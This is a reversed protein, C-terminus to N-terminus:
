AAIVATQMGLKTFMLFFISMIFAILIYNAYPYAMAPFITKHGEAIKQKRFKMHTVTIMLWTILLFAVVISMAFQFAEHWLPFKFSLPVVLLTLFATFLVAKIPVGRSNVSKFLKPASGQMALGYLMRSTSYVCSNYVSLAATLVIFNLVGAFYKFGINKFIFVFPSTTSDLYSWHNLSLLVLFAGIYFILIRYLVQNTAKPIVVKPNDAEAATLGILEVGGFSFMIIPLAMIFGALGMPFFGAYASDGAHAGVTPASWLNSVAAGEINNTFFLLYSGFVIMLIIATVKIIAFWFEIEGFAKVTLMNILNLAIFFALAWVITPVADGFWYHMYGAAAILEAIGVFVYLIWYNWGSLFGMYNSGYKYAFFSVSGAVPEETVMEGLQRLVLFAFLGGIVYGLIISPGAMAITPASGMFLGTGIAGGLAILQIHRNKLGRKLETQSNTAM